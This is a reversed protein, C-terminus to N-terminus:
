KIGQLGTVIEGKEVNQLATYDWLACKSDRIQYALLILHMARPLVNINLARNCKRKPHATQIHLSGEAAIVHTKSTCCFECSIESVCCRAACRAARWAAHLAAHM